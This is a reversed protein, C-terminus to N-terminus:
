VLSSILAQRFSHKGSPIRSANPSAWSSLPSGPAPSFPSVSNFSFAHAIQTVAPGYDRGGAHTGTQPGVGVGCGFRQEMDGPLGNQAVDKVLHHAQSNPLQGQDHAIHAVLDHGKCALVIIETLDHRHSLVFRLAQALGHIEGAVPGFPVRGQDHVAVGHEIGIQRFRDRTLGVACDTHALHIVRRTEAHHGHIAPSDEPQDLFGLLEHRVKGNHPDVEDAVARGQERGQFCKDVAVEPRASLELEGVCEVHHHFAAGPQIGEGYLVPEVATRGIRQQGGVSM